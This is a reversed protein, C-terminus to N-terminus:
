VVATEAAAALDLPAPVSAVWILESYGSTMLSVPRELPPPLLPQQQAFPQHRPFVLTAGGEWGDV